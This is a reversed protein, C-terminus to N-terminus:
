HMLELNLDKGVLDSDESRRDKDSRRLIVHDQHIPVLSLNCGKLFAILILWLRKL